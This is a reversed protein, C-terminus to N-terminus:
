KTPLAGVFFDGKASITPILPRHDNQVLVVHLTHRGRVLEGNLEAKTTFEEGAKTIFPSVFAQASLPTDIYLHAHGEGAVHAKGTKDVLQHNTTNVVIMLKGDPAWAITQGSITASNNTFKFGVTPTTSAQDGKRCQFVGPEIEACSYGDPCARESKCDFGGEGLDPSYCAFLLTASLPLLVSGLAKTSTTRM